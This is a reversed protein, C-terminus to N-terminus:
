NEESFLNVFHIGQLASTLFYKAFMYPVISYSGVRPMCTHDSHSLVAGICTLKFISYEQCSQNVAEGVDREIPRSCGYKM